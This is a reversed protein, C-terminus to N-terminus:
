FVDVSLVEGQRAAFGEAAGIGECYVLRGAQELLLVRERAWPPVGAERLVQKLPKSLGRGAPAFRDGPRRTRAILPPAIQGTPYITAYDLANKFLLNQIKGRFPGNGGSKKGLVLRRGGPLVTEGLTVPIAFGEEAVPVHAFFLGLGSVAQVSGPLSLGGDQGLLPTCLAIHKEELDHCGAELLYQRLARGQLSPHARLLTRCDLGFPRRAAQLLKEAEGELYDRDVSLQAMARQCAASFQPNIEKLVPVVQHRVRNRAYDLSANSSDTVYALGHAKCYAEVEERTVALLPRVVRGRKAPIGCLGQLSAGRGLHLLLTEVNDDATHATCIVDEEGTCLSEFFAYRVRRGCEELGSGEKRALARVDTRNVRLEAGWEEALARVHAEDRESEAGRLGHNVHALLLRERGVVGLLWHCLATSDAGGSFGAVVRGEPPLLSADAKNM